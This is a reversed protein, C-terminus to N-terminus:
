HTGGATPPPDARPEDPRPHKDPEAPPDFSPPVKRLHRNMSRILLVTAVGLLLIVLLGLPGAKDSESGALLGAVPATLYTV